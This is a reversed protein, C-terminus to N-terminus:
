TATAWPQPLMCDCCGECSQGAALKPQLKLPKPLCASPQLKAPCASHHLQLPKALCASPNCTCPSPLAHLLTAAAPAQCPMYLLLCSCPSPLAHLLPCSCPMCFTAVTPCASPQLHPPKAPYTCSCAAASAHIFIYCCYAVYSAFLSWVLPSWHYSWAALLLALSLM